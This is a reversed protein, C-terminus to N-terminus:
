LTLFNRLFNQFLSVFDNKEIKGNEDADLAFIQLSNPKKTDRLFQQTLVADRLDIKGDLNGDGKEPAGIFIPLVATAVNEGTQGNKNHISFVITHMGDTLDALLPIFFPIELLTTKDDAIKQLIEDAVPEIAFYQADAPIDAPNEFKGRVLNIEIDHVDVFTGFHRARVFLTEHAGPAVGLNGATRISDIQPIPDGVVVTIPDSIIEETKETLTQGGSFAIKQTKKVRIQFIGSKKPRLIGGGIDGADGSKEWDGGNFAFEWDLNQGSNESSNEGWLIERASFDLNQDLPIKQTATIKVGNQDLIELRKVASKLLHVTIEERNGADDFIKLPFTKETNGDSELIITPADDCQFGNGVSPCPNGTAFDFIKAPADNELFWNYHGSGGFGNIIIRDFKAIAGPAADADKKDIIQDFVGTEFAGDRVRLPFNKILNGDGDVGIGISDDVNITIENSNLEQHGTHYRAFIKAFGSNQIELLNKIFNDNQDKAMEGIEEFGFFELNENESIDEPDLFNYNALVRLRCKEGVLVKRNECHSSLTLGTAIPETIVITSIAGGTAGQQDDATVINQATGDAIARFTATLTRTEGANFADIQCRIEKGDDQCDLNPGPSINQLELTNEPYDDILHIDRYTKSPAQDKIVITYSVTEGREITGKDPNKTILWPSERDSVLITANTSVSGANSTATVANTIKGTAITTVSYKIQFEDGPLIDGLRCSVKDSDVFCADNQSLISGSVIKSVALSAAVIETKSEDFNDTLLVNEAVVTGGANKVRITYSITEGLDPLPNDVTKQIIVTNEPRKHTISLTASASHGTTADTITATNTLTSLTFDAAFAATGLIATAIASFFLNRKKM